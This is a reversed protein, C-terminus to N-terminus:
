KERKKADEPKEGEQVKVESDMLDIVKIDGQGTADKVTGTGNYTVGEATVGEEITGESRLGQALSEVALAGLLIFIPALGVTLILTRRKMFKVM